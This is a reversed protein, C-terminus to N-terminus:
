QGEDFFKRQWLELCLLAWLLEAHSARGSQHETILQRIGSENFLGRGLTPRDLLVDDLLGAMENRLWTEAPISFGHKPKGLTAPPLSPGIAARLINKTRGPRSTFDDPFTAVLEVLHHDLFPSRVELASAMSMRDVKVLIDNPLYVCYDLHSFRRITEESGGVFD